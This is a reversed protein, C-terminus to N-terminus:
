LNHKAPGKKGEHISVIHSKLRRKSTFSADCIDCKFPKKGEHVSEMHGKLHPKRAFSADCISCKFSKKREHVTTQHKESDIVHHVKSIHRKLNEPRTFKLLCM